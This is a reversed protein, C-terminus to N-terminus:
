VARDEGAPWPPRLPRSRTTEAPRRRGGTGPPRRHGRVGAAEEPASL